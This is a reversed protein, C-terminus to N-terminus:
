RALLADVEAARPAATQAGVARCNLAAVANAYRLMQAVDPGRPQALWSAILGARFLDGAGTTDVVEVRYGPVAIETGAVLALCGDAGLTVCVLPAGTEGQVEHLAARLDARGTLATPFSAAMAIVDLEKLLAWTHPHVHELDGVTKVGLERARRAASTMTEVDDSGVLLIRTSALVDDGIDSPQLGLREGRRWLVTRDGTSADVMILAMRSTQDEVIVCASTDVGEAKLQRRALEGLRDDGFRGIYKVRWGLRAVGVAASAAEGGPLERFDLLPVKANAQPHGDVVAVLDMSNEGIALVDFPRSAHPLGLQLKM